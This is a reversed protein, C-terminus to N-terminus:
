QEFVKSLPLVFGPLVDPIVLDQEKTFHVEDMEARYVALAKKDPNVLIVVTVGAALYDSVKGFMETWTNSPSRVEVVLEPIIELVGRPMQGPAVRNYSVYMIDAGFVTDPQCRVKIFVDHSAVQGLKYDEAFEDLFRSLRVCIRGHIWEPMPMEKVIGRVLEVRDNAHKQFFEESTMLPMGCTPLPTTTSTPLIVTSM